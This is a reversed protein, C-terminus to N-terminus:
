RERPPMFDGVAFGTSSKGSRNVTSSRQRGSSMGRHMRARRKSLNAKRASFNFHSLMPGPGPPAPTFFPTPEGFPPVGGEVADPVPCRGLLTEKHCDHVLKVAANQDRGGLALVGDGRGIVRWCAPFVCQKAELLTLLAFISWSEVRLIPEARHALCLAPANEPCDGLQLVGPEHFAGPTVAAASEHM